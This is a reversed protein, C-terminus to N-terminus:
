WEAKAREIITKVTKCEVLLPFTAEALKKGAASDSPYHVGLVERNRGIREALLQLPGLTPDPLGTQPNFGQSAAQPLVQALSLAVLHAQTSHGSPFAAHGPVDIPPMLRPSLVSPRPRNFRAKYHMVQFEGVRLAITSLGHTWPHSSPTFSLVGRFYVIFNDLQALAESMVAPRYDILAALEALESEVNANELVAQLEPEFGDWEQKAFEGLVVISYWYPEWPRGPFPMKSAKATPVNRWVEPQDIPPWKNGRWWTEGLAEQKRLAPSVGVPRAFQPLGSAVSGTAGLNMDMDMDMDMDAPGIAGGM